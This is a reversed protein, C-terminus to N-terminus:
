NFHVLYYGMITGEIRMGNELLKMNNNNTNALNLVLNQQIRFFLLITFYLKLILNFIIKFKNFM